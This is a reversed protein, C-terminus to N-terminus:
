RAEVKEALRQKMQDASIWVEDKNECFKHYEDETFHGKKLAERMLCKQVYNVMQMAAEAIHLSNNMDAHSSMHYMFMAYDGVECKHGASWILSAASACLGEAITTVQGKCNAIASSVTAGTTVMGGGSAIHIYFATNEDARNLEDILPLYGDIDDIPGRINAHIITKPTGNIEESFKLIPCKAQIVMAKPPQAPQSKPAEVVQGQEDIETSVEENTPADLIFLSETSILIDQYDDFVSM